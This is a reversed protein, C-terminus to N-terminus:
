IKTEENLQRSSAGVLDKVGNCLVEDIAETDSGHGVGTCRGVESMKGNVGDCLVEDIAGIDSRSDLMLADVSKM